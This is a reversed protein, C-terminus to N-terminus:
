VATQSVNILERNSGKDFLKAASVFKRDHSMNTNATIGPVCSPMARERM